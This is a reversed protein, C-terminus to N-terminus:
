QMDRSINRITSTFFEGKKHQKNVLRTMIEAISSPPIALRHMEYMYKLQPPSLDEKNLTLSELKAKSHFTHSLKSNKSLYWFQNDPNMYFQINM